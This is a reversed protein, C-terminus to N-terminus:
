KTAIKMSYAASYLAACHAKLWNRQTSQDQFLSCKVTTYQISALSFDVSAKQRQRESRYLEEQM